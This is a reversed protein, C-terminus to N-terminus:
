IYINKNSLQIRHSTDIEEFPTYNNYIIIFAGSNNTFLIEKQVLKLKFLFDMVTEWDNINVENQCFPCFIPTEKNFGDAFWQIKYVNSAFCQLCMKHKCISLVIKKKKEKVCLCCSKHIKLPYNQDYTQM